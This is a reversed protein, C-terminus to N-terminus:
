SFPVRGNITVLDLHVLPGYERCARRTCARSRSTNHRATVAESDLDLVTSQPLPSYLQQLLALCDKSDYALHKFVKDRSSFAHLCAACTNRQAIYSRAPNKYGHIRFMHTRLASVNSSFFSCETCFHLTQSCYPDIEAHPHTTPDRSNCLMDLVKSWRSSYSLVCDLWQKMADLPHGLDAFRHPMRKALWTFDDVILQPWSLESRASLACFRTVFPVDTMLLRRLFRLRQCRILTNMSPLNLEFLVAEDTSFQECVPSNHMNAIDRCVKLYCTNLKSEDSRSLRHGSGINYLLRIRQEKSFTPNRFVRRSLKEYSQYFASCRNRVEKKMSGSAELVSGMHKYSSVIRLVDGDAESLPLKFDLSALHDNMANTGRGRFVVFAETKNDSFNVSMGHSLFISRIICALKILNPIIRAQSPSALMFAGDDYYTTAVVKEIAEAEFAGFACPVTNTNSVPPLAFLLGADAAAQEIERIIASVCMNFIIDGLPDGQKAGILTAIIGALGDTAFWSGYHANAVLQNLHTSVGAQSFISNQAISLAKDIVDYPMKITSLISRLSVEGNYCSFIQERLLSDFAATIDVFLVAASWRIPVMAQLFSRVTFSCIDTGRGKYGGCQVKSSFSLASPFLCKRYWTHLKKGVSDGVTVGRHNSCTYQCGKSKWINVVAGGRYAAPEEMRVITKLFVSHFAMASVVPAIALAESAIGDEGHARGRKCYSMLNCVDRLSPINNLHFGDSAVQDLM